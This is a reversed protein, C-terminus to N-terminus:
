SDDRTCGVNRKTFIGEMFWLISMLESSGDRKTGPVRIWGLEGISCHLAALMPAWQMRCPM